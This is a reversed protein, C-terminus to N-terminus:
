EKAVIAPSASRMPVIVKDCMSWANVAAESTPVLKSVLFVFAKSCSKPDYGYLVKRDESKIDGM